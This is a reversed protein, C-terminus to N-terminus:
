VGKAQDKGDYPKPKTLNIFMGTYQKMQHKKNKIAINKEQTCLTRLSNGNYHKKDAFILKNKKMFEKVLKKHWGTNFDFSSYQVPFLFTKFFERVENPGCATKM